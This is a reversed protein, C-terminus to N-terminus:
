PFWVTAFYPPCQVKGLEGKKFDDERFDNQHKYENLNLKYNAQQANVKTTHTHFKTQGQTPL